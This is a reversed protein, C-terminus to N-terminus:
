ADSVLHVRAAAALEGLSEPDEPISPPAVTQGVEHHEREPRVRGHRAALDLLRLLDDARLALEAQDRRALETTPLRVVGVHDAVGPLAVRGLHLHEVPNAVARPVVAPELGVAEVEGEGPGLGERRSLFSIGSAAGFGLGFGFGL